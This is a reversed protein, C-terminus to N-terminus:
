IGMMTAGIANHNTIRTAIIGIPLPPARLAREVVVLPLCKTTTTTAALPNDLAPTTEPPPNWRPAPEVWASARQEVRGSDRGAEWGSGGAWKQDDKGRRQDRNWDRRQEVPPTREPPRGKFAHGRTDQAQWREQHGNRHDHSTNSPGWTSSSEFHSVADHEWYRESFHPAPPHSSNSHTSTPHAPTPASWSERSKTVDYEERREHYYGDNYRNETDKPRWSSERHSRSSSARNMDYSNRGSHSSTSDTRRYSSTQRADNPLRAYPDGHSEHARPPLQEDDADKNTRRRHHPM